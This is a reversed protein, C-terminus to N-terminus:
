ARIKAKHNNMDENRINADAASVEPFFSVVGLYRGSRFEHRRFVSGMRLSVADEVALKM